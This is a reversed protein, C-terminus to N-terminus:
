AVKHAVPLFLETNKYGLRVLEYLSKNLHFPTVNVGFSRKDCAKLLDEVMTTLQWSHEM